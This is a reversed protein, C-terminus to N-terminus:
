SLFAELDLETIEPLKLDLYTGSVSRNFERVFISTDNLLKSKLNEDKKGIEIFYPRMSYIQEESTHLMISLVKVINRVRLRKSKRESMSGIFEMRGYRIFSPVKEFYTGLLSLIEYVYTNMSFHRAREGKRNILDIESIVEMVSSLEYTERAIQPINQSVYLLLANLGLDSSMIGSFNRIDKGKFIMDMIEFIKESKDRQYEGYSNTVGTTLYQQCDNIAARIDPLDAKIIEVANERFEFGFQTSIKKIKDSLIQVAKKYDADNKKRYMKYEITLSNKFISQSYSTKTRFGYYDNMTIIIPSRSKQIINNIAKYGGIESNSGAEDSRIREFINDAEDILIIKKKEDQFLGGYLSAHGATDELFNESRVDSSNVEFVEMDYEKAIAYATSTKGLGQSGYLLLAKKTPNGSIWSEIWERISNKGESILFLDDIKEPKILASWLM